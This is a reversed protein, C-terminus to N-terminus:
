KEIDRHTVRIREGVHRLESAVAEAVAVSRHRGGTCGFAITLYAKGENRYAPVLLELLHMLRTLFEGTDPVAGLYERIPEDLGTMPRLDEDWYPNPLFRCDIVVDVDGPLGHKYGFSMITTSMVSDDDGDSFMDVMLAKLDYITRESTDIVLDAEERIPALLTREHEIAQTLSGESHPHRRKSSEYRRILVQTSADLFVVRVRAGTQRLDAIAVQLENLEHTAGVVLAVRPTSSRPGQALEGVKSVLSPPLNDIVFWGLDELANGAQTRGAGSLGSIVAFDSMVEGYSGTM